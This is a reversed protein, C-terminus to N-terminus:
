RTELQPEESFRVYVWEPEPEELQIVVERVRDRLNARTEGDLDGNEPVLWVWIAEMGTADQGREVKWHRVAAPLDRLKSLQDELDLISM